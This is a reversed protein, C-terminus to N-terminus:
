CWKKNISYKLVWVHVNVVMVEFLKGYDRWQPWEYEKFLLIWRCYKRLTIKRYMKDRRVETKRVYHVYVCAKVKGNFKFSGQFPNSHLKWLSCTEEVNDAHSSSTHTRALTHGNILAAKIHPKPLLLELCRPDIHEGRGAAYDSMLPVRM